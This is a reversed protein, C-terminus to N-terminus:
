RRQEGLLLSLPQRLQQLLPLAVATLTLLALLFFALLLWAWNQQQLQAISVPLQWLLVVACPVALLLPWQLQSLQRLPLLWLPCGMALLLLPEKGKAALLRQIGYYFIVLLVVSLLLATFTLVQLLSQFNQHQKQNRQQQSSLTLNAYAPQQLKNELLKLQSPAAQFVHQYLQNPVANAAAYVVADAKGYPDIYHLDSVIGVIKTTADGESLLLQGVLQSPEGLQRAMTVSLAVEDAHKPFEGHLRKISLLQYFGLSVPNMMANIGNGSSTPLRFSQQQSNGQLPLYLALESQIGASQFLPARQAPDPMQTPNFAGTFTLSYIQRTTGVTATSQMRALDLQLLLVAPALTLLLALSLSLSLQLATNRPQQHQHRMFQQRINLTLMLCLLLLSLLLLGLMGAIDLWDLQQQYSIFIAGLVPLSGLYSSVPWWCLLLVALIMLSLLSLESWLLRMATPASMGLVLRLRFEAQHRQWQYAILLFLSLLAFFSMLVAVILILTLLQLQQERSDPATTLGNILDIHQLAAYASSSVTKGQYTIQGDQSYLPIEALLQRTHALNQQVDVVGFAHYETSIQAFAQRTLLAKQAAAASHDAAKFSARDPLFLYQHQNSLWIDPCVETLDPACFAPDVVGSIQFTQGHVQVTQSSQLQQTFFQASVVAQQLHREPTLPEGSQLPLQLIQFFNPSVLAIQSAPHEQGQSFSSATVSQYFTIQDRLASNGIKEAHALAFLASQQELSKGALTFYQRESPLGSPISAQLFRAAGGFLTLTILTIALLTCCILLQPWQQQYKRWCHRFEFWFWNLM